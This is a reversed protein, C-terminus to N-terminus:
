VSASRATAKRPGGTNLDVDIHAVRSKEDHAAPWHYWGDWPGNTRARARSHVRAWAFGGPGQGPCLEIVQYLGPISEPRAEPTAGFAGAGLITLGPWQFPNAGPNAEHVDGHLVLRVGAKRLHGVLDVEKMGDVHLVAHHWVAIRLPQHATPRRKQQDDAATIGKLVAGPLLGSRKRDTQDV